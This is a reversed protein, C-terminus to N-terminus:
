SKKRCLREYDEWAAALDAYMRYDDLSYDDAYLLEEEQKQIDLFVKGKKGKLLTEGGNRSIFRYTRNAVSKGPPSEIICKDYFMKPHTFVYENTLM